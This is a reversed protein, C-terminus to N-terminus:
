LQFRQQFADVSCKRTCKDRRGPVVATILYTFTILHHMCVFATVSANYFLVFLGLVWFCAVTRAGV